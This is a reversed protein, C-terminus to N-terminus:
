QLRIPRQPTHLFAYVRIAFSLNTQDYDQNITEALASVTIKQRKRCALIEGGTLSSRKRLVPLTEM